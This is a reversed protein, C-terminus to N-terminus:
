RRASAVTPAVFKNRPRHLHAGMARNFRRFVRQGPIRSRWIIEFPHGRQAPQRPGPFSYRRMYESLQRGGRTPDADREEIPRWGRLPTLKPHRRGASRAFRRSALKTLFKKAEIFNQLLSRLTLTRITVTFRHRIASTLLKAVFGEWLFSRGDM